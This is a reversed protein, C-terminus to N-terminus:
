MQKRGTYLRALWLSIWSRQLLRQSDIQKHVIEESAPKWGPDLGPCAKESIM